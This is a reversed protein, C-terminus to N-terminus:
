VLRGDLDRSLCLQGPSNSDESVDPRPLPREKATGLARLAPRDQGCGTLGGGHGTHNTLCGSGWTGCPISM